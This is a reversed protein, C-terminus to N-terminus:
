DLRIECGKTASETIASLIRVVQLGQEVSVSSQKRQMLSSVFHHIEDRYPDNTQVSLNTQAVIGNQEGYHCLPHLAVGGKTGFVDLMLAEDQPGNVAWSVELHMILGGEFRIYASAFDEVDFISNDQNFDDASKWRSIMESNFKGIGQVLQGSVSVVRPMGTVWWALDLAHVGIDMLPGGGSLKKSTFWGAPTGRRRLIRTKVYYIDGLDGSGVFRKLVQAENRFRHTMGVMTIADHRKAAEVLQEAGVLEVGMPKEVLVHIGREVSAVALEIHSANPTCISVADVNGANLLATADAYVNKAGFETAVASAREVDSDAVAVLEVNPHDRYHPLHGMKAITGTGIVGVRINM